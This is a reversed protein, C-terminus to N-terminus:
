WVKKGSGYSVDDPTLEGNKDYDWEDLLDMRNNEECWEKLTKNIKSM